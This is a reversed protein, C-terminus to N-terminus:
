ASQEILALFGVITRAVELRAKRGIPTPAPVARVPRMGSLPLAAPLAAGVGRAIGWVPAARVGAWRCLMQEYPDM